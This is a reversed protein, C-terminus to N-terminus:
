PGKSWHCWRASWVKGILEARSVARHVPFSEMLDLERNMGEVVEETPLDQLPDEEVCSAERVTSEFEAKSAELPEEHGYPRVAPLMMADTEASPNIALAPPLRPPVQEMPMPIEGMVVDGLMDRSRSSAAFSLSVRQQQCKM